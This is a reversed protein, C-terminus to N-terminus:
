SEYTYRQTYRDRVKDFLVSILLAMGMLLLTTFVLAVTTSSISSILLNFAFHFLTAVGLGLAIIKKSHHQYFWSSALFYGAIGSALAHLLTAGIFRLVLTSMTTFAGDPIVQFLILINEIAAFGLAACIMYIMADMPEDFEPRRVILIYVAAFKVVEEVFAAWLFFMPTKALSYLEVGMSPAVFKIFLFQFVIALPALIVGLLFTRAILSKPEPHLDERYYFALWILSPILGLVILGASQLVFYV